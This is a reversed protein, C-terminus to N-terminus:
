LRAAVRALIRNSPNTLVIVLSDTLPEGKSPVEFEFMWEYREPLDKAQDLAYPMIPHAEANKLKVERAPRLEMGHKWSFSVRMSTMISKTLYTRTGTARLGNECPQDYVYIRLHMTDPFKTLVENGRLYITGSTSDERRFNQFFNDATLHGGLRFCPGNPIEGDTALLIGGDYNWVTKGRPPNAWGPSTPVTLFLLCAISLYILHRRVM